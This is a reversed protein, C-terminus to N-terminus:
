PRTFYPNKFFVSAKQVDEKIQKILLKHSKFKKEARLKKLLFTLLKRGYLSGSFDLIFVEFDIGRGTKKQRINVLSREMKEGILTRALYVGAGPLLKNQAIKLNATPFGLLRGLKRGQIVPGFVPYGGGLNLVPEEIKGSAIQKRILSSSVVRGRDKVPKVIKLQFGLKRSIKQLNRTRGSRKQGLAFNFGVIVQKIWFIKKLFLFFREASWNSLNRDFKLKLLFDLGLDELLFEKEKETNLFKINKNASLVEEPHPWFTVLLSYSSAARAQRIIKKLIQRHGLHLGDFNGITLFVPKKLLKQGKKLIKM